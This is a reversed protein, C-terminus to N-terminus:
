NSCLLLADIEPVDAAADNNGVAVSIVDDVVGGDDRCDTVAALDQGFALDLEMPPSGGSLDFRSFDLRVFNM